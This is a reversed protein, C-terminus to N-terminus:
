AIPTRASAVTRVENMVPVFIKDNAKPDYYLPDQHHRFKMEM